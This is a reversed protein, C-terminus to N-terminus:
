ITISRTSSIFALPRISAAARRARHSARSFSAALLRPASPNDETNAADNDQTVEGGQEVTSPLASPLSSFFVHDGRGADDPGEFPRPTMDYSSATPIRRSDPICEDPTFIGAKDVKDGIDTSSPCM